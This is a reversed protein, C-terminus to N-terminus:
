NLLKTKELQQIAYKTLDRGSHLDLKRRINLRHAEVTKVSRNLIMAIEMNGMGKGILQLVTTEISSLDNSARSKNDSAVLQNLLRTRMKSSVYLEGKLIERLAYLLTDTAAQKMVYGQAGAQLVREAYVIEDHMSMVLIQLQPFEERLEAILHYSFQDGLSLDLILLDHPCKRKIAMVENADGIECCVCFHSERNILLAIGEGVFPHDDIVMVKVTRKPMLM